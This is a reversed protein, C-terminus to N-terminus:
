YLYHDVAGHQQHEAVAPSTAICLKMIGCGCRFPKNQVAAFHRTVKCFWGGKGAMMFVQVNSVLYWQDNFYPDSFGFDSPGDDAGPISDKTSIRPSRAPYREYTSKDDVHRIPLEIQKDHIITRKERRLM